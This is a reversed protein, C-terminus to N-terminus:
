RLCHVSVMALNPIYSRLIPLEELGQLVELLRERAYSDAPQQVMCVGCPGSPGWCVM